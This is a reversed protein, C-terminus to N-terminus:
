KQINIDLLEALERYEAREFLNVTNNTALRITDNCRKLRNLM